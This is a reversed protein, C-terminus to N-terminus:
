SRDCDLSNNLLGWTQSKITMTLLVAKTTIIAPAIIIAARPPPMAYM